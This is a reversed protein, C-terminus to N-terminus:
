GIKKLFAYGCDCAARRAPVQRQCRPCQKKWPQRTEGMAGIKGEKEEAAKRAARVIRDARESACQPHIGGRSYSKKGCVPCDPMASDTAKPKSYNM